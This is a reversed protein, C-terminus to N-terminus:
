HNGRSGARSLRAAIRISEQSSSELDPMPSVQSPRLNMDLAAPGMCCPHSSTHGAPMSCSFVAPFGSSRLVCENSVQIAQKICPPRLHRQLTAYYSSIPLLTVLECQHHIQHHIQCPFYPPHCPDHLHRHLSPHPGVSAGRISM